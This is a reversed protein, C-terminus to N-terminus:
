RNSYINSSIEIIDTIFQFLNSIKRTKPVLELVERHATNASLRKNAKRGLHLGQFWNWVVFSLKFGLTLIQFQILNENIVINVCLRTTIRIKSM